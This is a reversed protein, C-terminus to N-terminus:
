VGELKNGKSRNQTAPIVQLNYEVHLGSVLKGRLPVIHDVEHKVGTEKTMRQAETYAALVAIKNAWAPVAKLKAAQYKRINAACRGKNAKRWATVTAKKREKNATAWKAVRAKIIEKHTAAYAKKQAKARAKPGPRNRSLADIRSAAEPNDTKWRTALLKACVMCAGNPYRISYGTGDDHGRLCLSGQSFGAM